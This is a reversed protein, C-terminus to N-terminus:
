IDNIKNPKIQKVAKKGTLPRAAPASVLGTIGVDQIKGAFFGKDGLSLVWFISRMM